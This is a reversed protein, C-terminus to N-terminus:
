FLKQQKEAIFFMTAGHDEQLKGVFNIQEPIITNTQRSLDTSILKCYNQHYFCDLLNGTTYDDNRSMEVLKEYADQKTKLPQDFLPKNELLADFDKKEILPMYYEDFSNRTPDDDGNKLSLVFFRNINRFTLDTLYDLNNNKTQTSIESRYKNWFITRKFGQKINELFKINDNISLTVVPVFNLNNIQFIAGTTATVVKYVVSDANPDVERFTRTVESIVCFKSWTLDLEIECNILPLYPSIWM